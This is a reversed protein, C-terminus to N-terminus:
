PLEFDPASAREDLAAGLVARARTLTETVAAEPLGLVDAVASVPLGARDALLVAARHDAALGAFARSFNPQTADQMPHRALSCTVDAPGQTADGTRVPHRYRRRLEDLCTLYAIRYLWPGAEAGASLRPLARYAKVYATQLVEDMGARDGLLHFTLERVMPDYHEVITAFARDDGNVARRVVRAAIECAPVSAPTSRDRTQEGAVDIDIDIGTGTGTGTDTDTDAKFTEDASAGIAPNADESLGIPEDTQTWEGM